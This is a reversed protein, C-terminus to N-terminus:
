EGKLLAAVVVLAPFLTKWVYFSSERKILIVQCNSSRSMASGERYNLDLPSLVFHLVYLLSLCLQCLFDPLVFLSTHFIDKGSFIGFLLEIFM